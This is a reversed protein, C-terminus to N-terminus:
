QQEVPEFHSHKWCAAMHNPGVDFQPPNLRRCIDRAHPCRPHFRCGIPMRIPNPVMGEITPLRRREETLKPISILLGETYPHQPSTFLERVGAKEVLNGAYM